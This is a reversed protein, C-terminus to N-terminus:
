SKSRRQFLKHFYELQFIKLELANLIQILFDYIIYVILIINVNEKIKLIKLM